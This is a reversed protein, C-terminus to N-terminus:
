LCLRTVLLCLENLNIHYLSNFEESSETLYKVHETNHLPRLKFAFRLLCIEFWFLFFLAHAPGLNLKKSNM